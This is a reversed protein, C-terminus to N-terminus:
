KHWPAILVKNLFNISFVAKTCVEGLPGSSKLESIRAHIGAERLIISLSVRWPYHHLPSLNPSRDPLPTKPSLSVHEGSPPLPRILVRGCKVLSPVWSVFLGCSCFMCGCWGLLSPILYARLRCWTLFWWCFEFLM